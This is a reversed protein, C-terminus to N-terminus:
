ADAFLQMPGGGLFPVEFDFCGPQATPFGGRVGRRWPAQLAAAQPALNGIKLASGVDSDSPRADTLLAAHRRIERLRLLLHQGAREASTQPM